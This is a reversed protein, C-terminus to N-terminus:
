DYAVGGLTERFYNSNEADTVIEIERMGMCRNRNTAIDCLAKNVSFKKIRLECPPTTEAEMMEFIAPIENRPVVFTIKIDAM